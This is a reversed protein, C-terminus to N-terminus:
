QGTERLLRAPVRLRVLGTVEVTGDGLVDQVTLRTGAPIGEQVERDLSVVDGVSPSWEPVPEPDPGDHIEGPDPEPPDIDEIHHERVPVTDPGTEVVFWLWGVDDVLTTIDSSRGPAVDSVFGVTGAPVIRGHWEAGDLSVAASDVTLRVRRGSM